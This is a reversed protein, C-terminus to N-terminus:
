CGVQVTASNVSASCEVHHNYKENNNTEKVLLICVMQCHIANEIPKLITYLIDTLTLWNYQICGKLYRLQCM